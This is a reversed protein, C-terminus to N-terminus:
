KGTGNQKIFDSQADKISLKLRGKEDVGKVIVPVKMGVKIYSEV